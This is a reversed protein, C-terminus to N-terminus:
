DTADSKEESQTAQWNQAAQKIMSGFKLAVIKKPELAVIMKDSVRKTKKLFSSPVMSQQKKNWAMQKLKKVM